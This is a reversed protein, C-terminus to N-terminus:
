TKMIGASSATTLLPPSIKARTSSPMQSRSDQAASETGIRSITRQMARPRRHRLRLSAQDPFRAKAGDEDISGSIMNINIAAIVRGDGSRIPVAIGCIAPDIQSDVWAYGQAAIKRLEQRLQEPDTIARPTVAKFAIREILEDRADEPLAALLVRGVSILHAPLRSGIGLHAALIRRAPQRLVYVVETEDLVALSCSQGTENRLDELVHHAAGWFPLGTLYSLGLKLSRPRLQFYRGEAECYRLAVLTALMRRATARSLGAATAVEAMTHRGPPRGLAEIVAFGRGIARVFSDSEKAM